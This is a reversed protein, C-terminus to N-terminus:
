GNAPFEPQDFITQSPRKILKVSFRAVFWFRAIHLVLYLSRVIEQSVDNTGNESGRAEDSLVGPRNIM